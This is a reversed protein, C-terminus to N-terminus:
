AFRREILYSGSESSQMSEEICPHQQLHPSFVQSSKIQDDDDGSSSMKSPLQSHVNVERWGASVEWDSHSRTGISCPAPSSTHCTDGCLYEPSPCTWEGEVPCAPVGDEVCSEQLTNCYVKSAKAVWGDMVTLYEDEGIPSTDLLYVSTCTDLVTSTSPPDSSSWSHGYTKSELEPLTYDIPEQTDDVTVSLSSSSTRLQTFTCAFTEGPAVLEPCELGLANKSGIVVVRLIDQMDSWDHRVTIYYEGELTYTNSATTENPKHVLEESGDGFNVTFFFMVNTDITIEVNDGVAIEMQNETSGTFNAKLYFTLVPGTLLEVPWVSM